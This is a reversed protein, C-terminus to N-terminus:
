DGGKHEAEDQHHQRAGPPRRVENNPAPQGQQHHARHRPRIAPLEAHNRRLGGKRPKGVLAKGRNPGKVHHRGAHALRPHQVPKGARQETFRTRERSGLVAQDPGRCQERAKEVVCGQDGHQHRHGIVPRTLM